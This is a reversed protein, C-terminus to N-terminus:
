KMFERMAEEGPSEPLNRYRPSFHMVVLHKVGARRAISGTIKATLHFRKRAMDIDKDMFYAECYLTDSDRVFEIIRRINDDTLSVDTVYSIKQGKTITAIAQLEDLRYQRGSVVFETNGPMRVRIADKLESLWPGVPLAMERLLAKNINIHFDEELSYALCPIQHDLQLAKVTFLPERFLVGSMKRIRHIRRQFRNEAHFSSHCITNGDIGYVEIKLPYETILNWTYGKLKGEICDDINAPGYVHLPVSRRLLARVLTDFGIFHDIHTHTIFVDTIKQLDGSKLRSIDGADFLLARKERFIRVFLGPDDFPTNVMRHMFSPKM